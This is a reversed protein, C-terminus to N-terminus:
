RERHHGSETDRCMRTLPWARDRDHVALSPQSVRLQEFPGTLGYVHELLEPELLAITDGQREAVAGLEELRPSCILAMTSDCPGTVASSSM